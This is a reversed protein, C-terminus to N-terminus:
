LLVHRDRPVHPHVFNLRQGNFTSIWTYGEPVNDRLEEDRPKEASTYLILVDNTKHQKIDKVQMTAFRNHIAISANRIADLKADHRREAVKASQNMNILMDELQENKELLEEVKKMLSDNDSKLSNVLKKESEIEDQLTRNELKLRENLINM